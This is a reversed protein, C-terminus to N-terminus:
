AYTPQLYIYEGFFVKGGKRNLLKAEDRICHIYASLLQIYMHFYYLLYVM